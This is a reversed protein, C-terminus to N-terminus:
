KMRGAEGGRKRESIGDSLSGGTVVGYEPSLFAKPSRGLEGIEGSVGSRMPWFMGPLYIPLLRNELPRFLCSPRRVFKRSM